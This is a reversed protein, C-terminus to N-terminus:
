VGIRQLASVEQIIGSTSGTNAGTWVLLLLLM